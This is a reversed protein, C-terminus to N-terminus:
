KVKGFGIVFMILTFAIVMEFLQFVQSTSNTLAAMLLVALWVM